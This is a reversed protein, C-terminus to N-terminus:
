AADGGVKRTRCDMQRCEKIEESESKLSDITPLPGHWGWENM